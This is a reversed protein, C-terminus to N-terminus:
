CDDSARSLNVEGQSCLLLCRCFGASPLYFEGYSPLFLQLHPGTYDVSHTRGAAAVHIHGEGGAEGGAIVLGSFCVAQICGLGGVCCCCFSSSAQLLWQESDWAQSCDFGQVHLNLIAPGPRHRQLATTCDLHCSSDAVHTCRVVSKQFPELTGSLRYFPIGASSSLGRSLGLGYCFTDRHRLCSCVM